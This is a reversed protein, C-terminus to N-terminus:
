ADEGTGGMQGQQADLNFQALVGALGVALQDYGFFLKDFVTNVPMPDRCGQAFQFGEAEDDDRHVPAATIGFMALGTAEQQIVLAAGDIRMLLYRIGPVADLCHLCGAGDGAGSAGIFIGGLDAVAASNVPSFGFCKGAGLFAM